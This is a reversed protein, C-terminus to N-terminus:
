AAAPVNASGQVAPSGASPVVLPILQEAACRVYAGGSYTAGSTTVVFRLDTTAAANIIDRETHSEHLFDHVLFGGPLTFGYNRSMRYIVASYPEDYPALNAGYMLRLRTVHTSDLALAGSGGTVVTYVLRCYYNSPPLRFENDGDATLPYQWERWTHIWALSPQANPDAIPDFYIQQIDTSGTNASQTNNATNGTYLGSGPSGTTGTVPNFRVEISTEQSNLATQFFGLPWPKNALTVSIPLDYVFTDTTSTTGPAATFSTPAPQFLASGSNYQNDIASIVAASAPTTDFLLGISNAMVTIRNYPGGYQGLADVGTPGATAYIFTATTTLRLAHLYGSNRLDLRRPVNLGTDYPISGLRQNRKRAQAIWTTPATAM